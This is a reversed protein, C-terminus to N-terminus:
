LARVFIETLIKYTKYRQTFYFVKM